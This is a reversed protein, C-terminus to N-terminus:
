IIVGAYEYMENLEEQTIQNEIIYDDVVKKTALVGLGNLVFNRTVRGKGGGLFAIHRIVTLRTLSSEIEYFYGAVFYCFTLLNKIASFQRLQCNEWGLVDKLFKFVGEIKSRKLYIHYINFAEEEISVKKNTILLMPQKFIHKGKKDTVEIKVVEYGDIQEGWSVIVKVDQYTKNKLIFKPYHRSVSFNFVDDVIKLARETETHRQYWGRVDVADAIPEGPRKIESLVKTLKINKRYENSKLFDAIAGDCYFIKGTLNKRSTKNDYCVDNNIITYNIDSHQYIKKLEETTVVYIECSKGPSLTNKNECVRSIKLRIVFDDKLESSIFDFVKASDFERDLVHTLRSLQHLEGKLAVSIKRLQTQLITNSNIYDGAEILEALEDHQAKEEESVDDAVSKNHQALMDENIYHKSRNSYINTELLTLNAGNVDIAITNLSSFGNIIKGSLSRVKGLDETESSYEKRIDSPDTILFLENSKALRSVGNELLAAKIKENDLTTKGSSLLRSMQKYEAEDNAMSWIKTTKSQIMKQFM